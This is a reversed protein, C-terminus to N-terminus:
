GNEPYRELVTIFPYKQVGYAYGRLIDRMGRYEEDYGGNYSIRNALWYYQLGQIMVFKRYHQPVFQVLMCNFDRSSSTVCVRYPRTDIRVVKVWPASLNFGPIADLDLEGTFLNRTIAVHYSDTYHVSSFYFLPIIVAIAIAAISLRRRM